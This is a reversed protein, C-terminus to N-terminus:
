AQKKAKPPVSRARHPCDRNNVCEDDILLRQVPAGGEIHSELIEPVDELEVWGYWVAEPYVVLCPGHECQDLCGARNARVRGRLGRRKLESKFLARLAETQEPDCCGRPHGPERYNGCVFIHHEFKAMDGTIIGGM